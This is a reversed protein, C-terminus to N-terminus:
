PCSKSRCPARVRRTAPRSAGRQQPLPHPQHHHHHRPSHRNQIPCHTRRHHSQSTLSLSPSPPSHTPAGPYTHSCWRSQGLWCPHAPQTIAQTQPQQTLLQPSQCCYSIMAGPHRKQATRTHAHTHTHTHTHTRGDSRRGLHLLGSTSAFRTVRRCECHLLLPFSLFLVISAVTDTTQPQSMQQPRTEHPVFAGSLGTNAQWRSLRILWGRSNCGRCIRPRETRCPTTGTVDVAESPLHLTSRGLVFVRPPKKRISDSAGV